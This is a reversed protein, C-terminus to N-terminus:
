FYFFFSFCFSTSLIFLPLVPSNVTIIFLKIHTAPSPAALLSCLSDKCTNVSPAMDSDPKPLKLYAVRLTHSQFPHGQWEDGSCHCSQLLSIEEESARLWRSWALFIARPDHSCSLQGQGEGAKPNSITTGSGGRPLMTFSVRTTPLHAQGSIHTHFLQDWWKDVLLHCPHPLSARGLVCACIYVRVCTLM